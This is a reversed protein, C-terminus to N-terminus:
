WEGAIPREIEKEGQSVLHLRFRFETSEFTLLHIFKNNLIEDKRPPHTPCECEKWLCRKIQQNSCSSFSCFSFGCVCFMLDGLALCSNMTMRMM